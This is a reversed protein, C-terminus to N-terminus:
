STEMFGRFCANQKRSDEARQCRNVAVWLLKLNEQLSSSCTSCSLIMILTRRLPEQLHGSPVHIGRAVSGTETTDSVDRHDYKADENSRCDWRRKETQQRDAQTVTLQLSSSASTAGSRPRNAVSHPRLEALFSHLYSDMCWRCGNRRWLSARRSASHHRWVVTSFYKDMFEQVKLKNSPDSM